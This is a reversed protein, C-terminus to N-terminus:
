KQQGFRIGLNDFDGEGPFGLGEIGHAAQLAEQLFVEDGAGGPYLLRAVDLAQTSGTNDEEGAAGLGVNRRSRLYYSFDLQLCTYDHKVGIGVGDNQNEPLQRPFKWLFKKNKM